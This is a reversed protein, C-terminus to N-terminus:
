GINKNKQKSNTKLALLRFNEMFACLWDYRQICMVQGLGVYYLREWNPVSTRNQLFYEKIKKACNWQYKEQITSNVKRTEDSVYKM